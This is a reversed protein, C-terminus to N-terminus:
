CGDPWLCFCDGEWECEWECEWAWVAPEQRGGGMAERGEEPPLGWLLLQPLACVSKCILVWREQILGAERRRCVQRQEEEQSLRVLQLSGPPLSEGCICRQQQQELLM